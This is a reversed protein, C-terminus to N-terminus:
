ESETVKRLDPRTENYQSFKKTSRGIGDGNWSLLIIKLLYVYKYDIRYQQMETERGRAADRNRTRKKPEPRCLSGDENEARAFIAFESTTDNKTMGSTTM